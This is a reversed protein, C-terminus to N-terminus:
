ASASAAPSRLSLLLGAAAGAVAQCLPRSSRAATKLGFVALKRM